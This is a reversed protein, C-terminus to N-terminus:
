YISRFKRGTNTRHGLSPSLCLWTKEMTLYLCSLIEGDRSVATPSLNSPHTLVICHFDHDVSMMCCDKSNDQNTGPTSPLLQQGTYHYPESTKSSHTDECTQSGVEPIQNPPVIRFKKLSSPHTASLETGWSEGANYARQLQSLGPQM